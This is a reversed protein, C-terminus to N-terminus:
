NLAKLLFVIFLNPLLSDPIFKYLLKYTKSPFLL